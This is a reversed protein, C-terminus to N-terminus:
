RANHVFVRKELNTSMFIRSNAKCITQNLGFIFVAFICLRLCNIIYGIYANILIKRWKWILKEWNIKSNIHEWLLVCIKKDINIVIDNTCMYFM